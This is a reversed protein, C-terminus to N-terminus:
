EQRLLVAGPQNQCDGIRALMQPSRTSDISMGAKTVQFSPRGTADITPDPWKPVGHERMCRAFTRGEELAQRVVAPPCDSTMLCQTLSATDSDPLLQRCARQSVQFQSTSVGFAPADGKPVQGDSGPDPYNPVGHARM